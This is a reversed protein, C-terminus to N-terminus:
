FLKFTFRLGLSLKSLNLESVGEEKYKTIAFMYQFYPYVSFIQSDFDVGLAIVGSLRNKTSQIFPSIDLNEISTNYAIGVGFKFKKPYFRKFYMLQYSYNEEKSFLKESITIKKIETDYENALLASNHNLDFKNKGFKFFISNNNSLKYTLNVGIAFGQARYTASETVDDSNVVEEFIATYSRNYDFGVLISEGITHQSFFMHVFFVLFIIRFM